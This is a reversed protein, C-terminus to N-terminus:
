RAIYYKERLIKVLQGSDLITDDALGNIAATLDGPLVNNTRASLGMLSEGQTAAVIHVRREVISNLEAESLTRLSEGTQRLQDSYRNPGFAVIRFISRGAAVWLYYYSVPEAGSDDDLKVLHANWEGISTEIPEWPEIDLSNSIQEIFERALANTGGPKEPSGFLVIADNEPAFAGVFRPTNLTRWNDPFEISLNMGPHMFQQGIFIGQMPNNPGWTWGDLRKYLAATNKAFPLGRQWQM